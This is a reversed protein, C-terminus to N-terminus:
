TSGLDKVQLMHKHTQKKLEYYEPILDTKTISLM